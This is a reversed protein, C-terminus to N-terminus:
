HAQEADVYLSLKAYDEALSNGADPPLGLEFRLEARAGPALRLATTRMSSLSGDYVPTGGCTVRCTLAEYFETIGAKKAATVTIDTPLTGDNLVSLSRIATTGPALSDVSLPASTPETSIAM